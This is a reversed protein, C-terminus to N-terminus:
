VAAERPGALVHLQVAMPRFEPLQAAAAELAQLDAAAGGGAPSDLVASPVLDAFIRVGHVARVGFGARELLGRLEAESFRRPVPDHAGFRGDPDRLGALAEDLHGSMARSLVAATRNAALVSALGSPRLLRYATLAGQAPDDAFELVGHCLVADAEGPEVVECATSIDGQVARVPGAPRAEAARRELAALADPSPDIVTVRHGLGALPVAFGGTGGGLDVVDLPGGVRRALEDLAERLAEWVVASRVPSRHIARDTLM